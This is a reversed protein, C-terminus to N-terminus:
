GGRQPCERRGVEAVHQWADRDGRQQQVALGVLASGSINRVVEVSLNRPGFKGEQQVRPM